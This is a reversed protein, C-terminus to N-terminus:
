ENAQENKTAAPAQEDPEPPFNAAFENKLLRRVICKTLPLWKDVEGHPIADDPSAVLEGADLLAHAISNRVVRLEDQYLRRIKKGLAEQRFITALDLDDWEHRVSFIANLWPLFDNAEGPIVERPHHLRAGNQQAEHMLRDRRQYLSEIIKYFCLFRYVTSTSNLAERYLSGYTALAADLWEEPGYRM